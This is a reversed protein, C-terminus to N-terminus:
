YPVGSASLGLIVLGDNDIYNQSQRTQGLDMVKSEPWYIDVRLTPRDCVSASLVNDCRFRYGAALGLAM